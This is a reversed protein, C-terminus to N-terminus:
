VGRLNWGDQPPIKRYFTPSLLLNGLLAPPVYARVCLVASYGVMFRRYTGLHRMLFRMARYVWHSFGPSLSFLVGDCPIHAHMARYVHFESFGVIALQDELVLSVRLYRHTWTRIDHKRWQATRMSTVRRAHVASIVALTPMFRGQGCSVRAPHTHV